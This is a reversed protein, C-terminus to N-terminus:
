CCTLMQVVQKHHKLENVQAFIGLKTRHTDMLKLYWTFSFNIRLTCFPRSELSLTGSSASKQQVFDVKYLFGLGTFYIDHQLKCKGPLQSLLRLQWKLSQGLFLHRLDLLMELTNWSIM